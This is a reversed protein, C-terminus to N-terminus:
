IKAIVARLATPARDGLSVFGALITPSDLNVRQAFAGSPVTVLLVGNKIFEPRCHESVVPDVITPWLTRIEDILRIDVKRLRGALVHLVDGLHRPEDNFRNM